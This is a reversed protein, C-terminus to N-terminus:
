VGYVAVPWQCGLKWKNSAVLTSTDHYCSTIQDFINLDTVMGTDLYLM